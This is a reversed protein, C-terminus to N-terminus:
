IYFFVGDTLFKLTGDFLTIRNRLIQHTVNAQSKHKLILFLLSFYLIHSM